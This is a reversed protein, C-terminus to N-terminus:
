SPFYTCSRCISSIRCWNLWWPKLCGIPPAPNWLWGRRRTPCKKAVLCSHSAWLVPPVGPVGAMGSAVARNWTLLLVISSHCYDNCTVPVCGDKIMKVLKPYFFHYWFRCSRWKFIKSAKGMESHMWYLADCRLKPDFSGVSDALCAM